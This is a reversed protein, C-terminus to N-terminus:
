GGEDEGEGLGCAGFCPCCTTGLVYYVMVGCMM